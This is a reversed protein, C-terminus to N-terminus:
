AAADKRMRRRGLAGLGLLASGFLPLATPLPVPSLAVRLESSLANDGVNKVGAVFAYIGSEAATFTFATWASSGYDGFKSIDASFLSTYTSTPGEIFNIGVAGTDNYPKYDHGIWKAWGSISQGATLTFTQAVSAYKNAGVGAVIDLVGLRTTGIVDQTASVAGYTTWGDLSASSLTAAQASASALLAATAVASLLIKRM